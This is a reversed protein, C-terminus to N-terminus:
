RRPSLAQHDRARFPAELLSRRGQQLRSAGGACEDGSSSHLGPGHGQIKPPPSAPAAGRAAHRCLASAPGQLPGLAQDIAAHSAAPQPHPHAAPRSLLFVGFPLSQSRKFAEHLRNLQPLDLKGNGNDQSGAHQPQSNAGANAAGGGAGSPPPPQPAAQDTCDFNQLLDEQLRMLTCLPPCDM